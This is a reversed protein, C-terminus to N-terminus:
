GTTRAAHGRYGRGDSVARGGRSLRREEIWEILMEWGIKVGFGLAVIGLLLPPCCACNM